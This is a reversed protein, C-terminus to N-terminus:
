QVVPPGSEKAYVKEWSLSKLVEQADGGAQKEAAGSSTDYSTPPRRGIRKLEKAIARWGAVYGREHLDFLLHLLATRASEPFEEDIQRHRGRHRTSFPTDGDVM